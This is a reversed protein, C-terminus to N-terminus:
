THRPNEFELLEPPPHSYSCPLSHGGLSGMALLGPVLERFRAAGLPAWDPHIEVVFSGTKTGSQLNSAAFSVRFSGGGGAPPQAAACWALFFAAAALSSGRRTTWM